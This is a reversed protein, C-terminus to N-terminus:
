TSYIITKKDRIPKTFHDPSVSDISFYNPEKNPSMYIGPVNKLYADLSTTGANPAGVIFFDPWTEM